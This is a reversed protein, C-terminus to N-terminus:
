LKHLFVGYCVNIHHTVRAGGGGVDRVHLLPPCDAGGLINSLCPLDGIVAAKIASLNIGCPFGPSPSVWSIVYTELRGWGSLATFKLFNKILHYRFRLVVYILHRVIGPHGVVSAGIRFCDVVAATDAM